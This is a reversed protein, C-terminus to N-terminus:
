AQAVEAIEGSGPAEGSDTIPLAVNNYGADNIGTEWIVLGLGGGPDGIGAVSRRVGKSERSIDL